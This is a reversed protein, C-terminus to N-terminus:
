DAEDLTEFIKEVDPTPEIIKTEVATIRDNLKEVAKWYYYGVFLLAITLLTTTIMHYLEM